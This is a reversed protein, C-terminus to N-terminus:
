AARSLRATVNLCAECTDAPIVGARMLCGFATCGLCLGVISELAAAVIIFALLISTALASGTLFWVLAAAATIVTGIAQAFRKPPGPVLKAPGLRPAIVRNALQGLPSFRPGNLVRALFGFALVATLWFWGTTVAVVALLLVGAAVTRATKENVPNPFTLLATM